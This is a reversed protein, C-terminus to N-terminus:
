SNLSDAPRQKGEELTGPFNTFVSFLHLQLRSGDAPLLLLLFLLVPIAEVTSAFTIFGVGNSSCILLKTKFM